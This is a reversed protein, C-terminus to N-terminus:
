AIERRAKARELWRELTPIDVERIEPEADRDAAALLGATLLGLTGGTMLCGVAVGIVGLVSM